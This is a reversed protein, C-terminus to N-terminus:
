REGWQLSGQWAVGAGMTESAADDPLVTGRGFSSYAFGSAALRDGSLVNRGDIVVRRRM